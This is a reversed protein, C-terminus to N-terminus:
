AVIRRVKILDTDVEKMGKLKLSGNILLSAVEKVIAKNLQYFKPIEAVTTSRNTNSLYQGIM